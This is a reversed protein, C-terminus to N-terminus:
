FTDYFDQNFLTPHMRFFNWPLFNGGRNELLIQTMSEYYELGNQKDQRFMKTYKVIVELITVTHEMIYSCM